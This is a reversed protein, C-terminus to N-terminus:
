HCVSQTRSDSTLLNSKSILPTKFTKNTNAKCLEEDVAQSREVHARTVIDNDIMRAFDLEGPDALRLAVLRVGLKAVRRGGRVGCVRFVAEQEKLVSELTQSM